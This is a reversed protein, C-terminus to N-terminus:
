LLLFEFECRETDSSSFPLEGQHGLRLRRNHSSLTLLVCSFGRYASSFLDQRSIMEEKLLEGRQSKVGAASSRRVLGGELTKRM